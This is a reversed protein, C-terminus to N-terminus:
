GGGSPAVLRDEPATRNLDLTGQLDLREPFDHRLKGNEDEVLCASKLWALDEPTYEGEVPKGRIFEVWFLRGGALELITALGERGEYAFLGTAIPKLPKGTYPSLKERDESAKGAMSKLNGWWGFVRTKNSYHILWEPPSDCDLHDNSYKAYDESWHRAKYNLKHMFRVRGMQTDFKIYEVFVDLTAEPDDFFPCSIGHKRVFRIVVMTWVAKVTKLEDKTWPGGHGGPATDWAVPKLQYVEGGDEGSMDEVVTLAYNPLLEHFHFHPQLPAETKWTHLNVSRAMGDSYLGVAVLEAWLRAEMRWAYDRGRKVKTALYKSVEMPLTFVLDAVRFDTLRNNAVLNLM